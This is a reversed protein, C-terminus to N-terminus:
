KRKHTKRKNHRRKTRRNKRRAGILPKKLEQGYQKHLASFSPIIGKHNVIKLRTKEAPTPNGNANFFMAEKDSNYVTRKHTPLLFSM